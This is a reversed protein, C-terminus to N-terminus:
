KRIGLRDVILIATDQRPEQNYWAILNATHQEEALAITAGATAANVAIVALSLEREVISSVRPGEVNKIRKSAEVMLGRASVLDENKNM